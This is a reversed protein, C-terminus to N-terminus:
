KDSQTPPVPEEGTEPLAVEDQALITFEVRRNAGRGAETENTDIPFSEGYGMPILLGQPVGTRGELFRVVTWARKWSLALNYADTGRHDAHGGVEIQRIEPYRLLTKGIEFLLDYSEPRISHVDFGFFIKEDFYIQRLGVMVRAPCGDSYRPDVRPDAAEDPCADRFDPVRDGDRDPCGALEPDGPDDPCEDEPDIVTDGDRDPCGWAELPGAIDPCADEVDVLGDFDNDPDPCGDVDKWDDFDEPDNPCGDEPDLIGDQDNDADPCGDYDEFGDLDEPQDPCRDDVDAVGDGDLDPPQGPDGWALGVVVRWDPAGVGAVIGTGAAVTARLGTKQLLTAYVHGEVPNKNYPGLGGALTAIADIEAGALIMDNFRYHAGVGGNVNVGQTVDGVTGQPAVEFGLNANWGLGALTGGAAGTLGGTFGDDSVFLGPTGTPATIQPVVAVGTGSPGHTWVPITATLRLDGVARSSNDLLQIYPYLPADVEFRVRGLVTYGGMLHTALHVQLLDQETGDELEVVVPDDAYSVAFGIYWADAHGVWPTKLQLSGNDDYVDGSLSLTDLNQALAPASGLLWAACARWAWQKVRLWM